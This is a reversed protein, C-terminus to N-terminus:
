AEDGEWLQPGPLKLDAAYLPSERRAQCNRALSAAVRRAVRMRGTFTEAYFELAVKERQEGM